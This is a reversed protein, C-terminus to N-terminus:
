IIDVICCLFYVEIRFNFKKNRYKGWSSASTDNIQLFLLVWFRLLVQIFSYFERFINDCTTVFVEPLDSAELSTLPEIAESSIPGESRRLSQCAGYGRGHCPNGTIHNLNNLNNTEIWWTETYNWDM